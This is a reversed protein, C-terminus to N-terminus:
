IRNSSIVTMLADVLGDRSFPKYLVTAGTMSAIKKMTDSDRYATTFLVPVPHTESFVQVAEIGNGGDRLHIDMIVVDPDAEITKEIADQETAVVGVVELGSKQLARSIDLAVLAEDEVIMVRYPHDVGLIGYRSGDVSLPRKSREGGCGLIGRWHSTSNALRSKELDPIAHM